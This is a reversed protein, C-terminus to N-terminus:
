KEIKEIVNDLFKGVSIKKDREKVENRVAVVILITGIALLYFWWPIIIWFEKTLYIGSVILMATNVVFQAGYKKYYSYFMFILEVLIIGIADALVEAESIFSLYVVAILIYEVYKLDRVYKKLVSRSVYSIAFLIGFLELGIVESLNLLELTEFYTTLFIIITVIRYGDKYKDNDICYVHVLTYVFAIINLILGLETADNLAIISLYGAITFVNIDKNKLSLIGFSITSIMYMVAKVSEVLEMRDAIMFFGLLPVVNFYIYTKNKVYRYIMFVTYILGIVYLFTTDMNYISIYAAISNLLIYTESFNDNYLETFKEKSVLAEFPFDVLKIVKPLIEELGIVFLSTIIPVMHIATESLKFSCCISFLSLNVFVYNLYKFYVNKRMNQLYTYGYIVAMIIIYVFNNFFITDKIVLGLFTYILTFHSVYFFMKSLKELKPSRVFEGIVYTCIACIMYYYMNFENVLGFNVYTLVLEIPVLVSSLQKIFKDNSGYSILAVIINVLSYVYGAIISDEVYANIQLIAIGFITVVISSFKLNEKNKNIILSNQVIFIAVLWILCLIEKVHNLIDFTDIFVAGALAFISNFIVAVVRNSSRIELCLYNIALVILTGASLLSTDLNGISLISLIVVMVKFILEISRKNEFKDIFLFILINYLGLSLLVRSFDSGFILSFFIVSLYQMLISGYMLANSKHSIYQYMYIVAVVINVLAFYLYKGEGEISLFDGFLGFFSISYLCIPIYAMAIYFFTNSANPLNFKDKAIKSLGLFVEIFIVLIATKIINPIFYWTSILFVIAALIIFVAGATLILTNRSDDKNRAKEKVVVKEKIVENNNQVVTNTVINETVTNNVTVNNVVNDKIDTVEKNVSENMSNPDDVFRKVYEKLVSIKEELSKVQKKLRRIEGEKQYNIYFLMIILIILIFPM